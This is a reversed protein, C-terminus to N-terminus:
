LKSPQIEFLPVVGLKELSSLTVLGHPIMWLDCLHMKFSGFLRIFLKKAMWILKTHQITDDDDWHYIIATLLTELLSVKSDSVLSISDIREKNMTLKYTTTAPGWSTM